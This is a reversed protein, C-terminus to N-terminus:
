HKKFINMGASLGKWFSGTFGKVSTLALSGAGLLKTAIGSFYSVKKDAEQVISNISKLTVQLEKITPELDSKIVTAIDNLSNALKSLEILLKILFVGCIILLVVTVTIFVTLYIELTVSM